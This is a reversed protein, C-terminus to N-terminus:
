WSLSMRIYFNFFVNWHFQSFFRIAAIELDFFLGFGWFKWKWWFNWKSCTSKTPTFIWTIDWLKCFKIYLLNGIPIINFNQRKWSSYSRSCIPNYECSGAIGSKKPSNFIVGYLRPTDDLLNGCFSRCSFSSGTKWFFQFGIKLKLQKRGYMARPKPATSSIWAVPIKAM